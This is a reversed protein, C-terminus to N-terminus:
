QIKKGIVTALALKANNSLPPHNDIDVMKQIVAQILSKIEQYGLTDLEQILTHLLQTLKQHYKTTPKTNELATCLQGGAPGGKKTFWIKKNSLTKYTNTISTHLMTLVTDFTTLLLYHKSASPTNQLREQNPIIIDNMIADLMNNIEYCHQNLKKRSNPDKLTYIQEEFFNIITQIKEAVTKVYDPMTFNITAQQTSAPSLSIVSLLGTLFLIKKIKM